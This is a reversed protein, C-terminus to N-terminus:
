RNVSNIALDIYIVVRPQEPDKAVIETERACFQAAPDRHAPSAQHMNVIL